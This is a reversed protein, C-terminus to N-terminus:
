EGQLTFDVRQTVGCLLEYPITGAAVAIEEVPLGRGWLVVEDGEQADPQSDLDVAIMDMSVRGILPVRQGNVLVPTGNGAHRPYGDGYGIAAIGYRKPKDATFRGGYGISEGAAMQKVAILETSVTMVPRLNQETGNEDIIPSVGYLSVGPRVWDAHSAPFALTGASNAISLEGGLHETAERFLEIQASTAAEDLDDAKALHTMLRPTGAVANSDLVRQWAAPFEDLKFGLRNMGTDLKVWIPLRSGSYAELWALQRQTHVVLEFGAEAALSIEEPAFAGELLLVPTDVGAARIRRAEDLSAVAFLEAEPLARVVAELGHGYANAKVVAMVRAGDARQSLVQFNHRLADLDIVASTARTM